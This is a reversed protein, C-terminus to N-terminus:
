RLGNWLLLDNGATADTMSDTCHQVSRQLFQRVTSGCLAQGAEIRSGAAGSIAPSIPQEEHLQWEQSGDAVVPNGATDLRQIVVDLGPAANLGWSVPSMQSSQRAFTDRQEECASLTTPLQLLQRVSWSSPVTPARVLGHLQLQPQGLVQLSAGSPALSRAARTSGPAGEQLGALMARLSTSDGPVQQQSDASEATRTGCLDQGNQKGLVLGVATNPGSEAASSQSALLGLLLPTPTAAVSLSM